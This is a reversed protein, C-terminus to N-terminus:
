AIRGKHLGMEKTQIVKGRKAFMQGCKDLKFSMGPDKSYIRTISVPSDIDRESRAYVNIGDM